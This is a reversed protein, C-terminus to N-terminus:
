LSEGIINDGLLGIEQHEIFTMVGGVPDYYKVPHGAFYREPHNTHGLAGGRMIILEDGEQIDYALACAVKEVGRAASATQTITPTSKDPAYIRCPIGTLVPKRVQETLAGDDGGLVSAGVIANGVVPIASEEVVRYVDMSDTYWASIDFYSM